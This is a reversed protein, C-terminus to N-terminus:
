YPVYPLALYQATPFFDREYLQLVQYILFLCLAVLGFISIARPISRSIYLLYTTLLFGLAIFLAYLETGRKDVGNYLFDGLTQFYSPDPAGAEVFEQSLPILANAGIKGVTFTIAALLICGLAMLAIINYEEYFVVFYLVGLAIIVITQGLAALGSIRMLSLRKSISLLIDSMSGSGVATAQLGETILFSVFVLVQAVGLLRVTNTEINM